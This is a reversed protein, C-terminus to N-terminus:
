EPMEKGAALLVAAGLAKVESLYFDTRRVPWHRNSGSKGFCCRYAHEKEVFEIHGVETLMWWIAVRMWQVVKESPGCPHPWKTEPVERSVHEVVEAETWQAYPKMM